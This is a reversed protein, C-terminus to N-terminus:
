RRWPLGTATAAGKRGTAPEAVVVEAAYVKPSSPAMLLFVQASYYVWLFLLILGGAAGYSSAVASSGLYWGILSKGITFLLATVLAGVLVDRWAVPCDPLVKYIAAFLLSLLALSVTFNAVSMVAAGFPLVTDLYHGLAQLGASVALSAALLFGLAAVLGLSAARARILRSLTAGSPQAKWIRNLATQMEGFVGSATVVLTVLGVIGALIGSSKASASALAAQLVAATEQGMLGSLEQLVGSQAAQQGFALGAVAIVLLLAVPALSTVTYFAIAAGRSLAEDDIFGLVTEKFLRWM